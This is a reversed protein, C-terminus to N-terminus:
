DFMGQNLSVRFVTGNLAVEVIRSRTTICDTSTWETRFCVGSRCIPRETEIAVGGGDWPLYGKRTHRLSRGAWVLRHRMLVKDHTPPFPPIERRMDGRGLRSYIAESFSLDMRRALEAIEEKTAERTPM